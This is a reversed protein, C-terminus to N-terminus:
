IAFLSLKMHEDNEEVAGKCEFACYARKIRAAIVRRYGALSLQQM